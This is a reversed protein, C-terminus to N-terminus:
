SVEGSAAPTAAESIIDGESEADYTQGDRRPPWPWPMLIGSQEGRKEIIPRRAAQPLMERFFENWAAVQRHETLFLWHSRPPLDSLAFVRAKNADPPIAIRGDGMRFPAVAGALQCLATYARGERSTPEVSTPQPLTSATSAIEASAKDAGDGRIAAMIKRVIVTRAHEHGKPTFYKPHEALADAVAADIIPRIGTM